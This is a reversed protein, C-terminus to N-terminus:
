EFCCFCRIKINAYITDDDDDYERKEIKEHTSITQQRSLM